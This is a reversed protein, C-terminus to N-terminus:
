NRFTIEYVILSEPILAESRYKTEEIMNGQSDYKYIYKHFLSGDSNYSAKEIM